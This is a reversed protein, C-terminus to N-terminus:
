AKPARGSLAGFGHRFLFHLVAAPQVVEKEGVITAMTSAFYASHKKRALPYLHQDRGRDMRRHPGARYKGDMRSM